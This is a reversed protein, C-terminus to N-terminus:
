VGCLPKLFPRPNRDQAHSCGALNDVPLFRVMAELMTIKQFGTIEQMHRIKNLFVPKM